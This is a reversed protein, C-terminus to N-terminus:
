SNGKDLLYDFMGFCDILRQSLCQEGDIAKDLDFTKKVIEAIGAGWIMPTFNKSQNRREYSSGRVKKQSGWSSGSEYSTTVECNFYIELEPELHYAAGGGIIVEDLKTPLLRNLWRELKDGYEATAREIAQAIDRIERTRLNTDKASALPRM